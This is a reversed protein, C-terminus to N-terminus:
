KYLDNRAHLLERWMSRDEHRSRVGPLLGRQELDADHLGPRGPLLRHRMGSQGSVDRMAASRHPISLFVERRSRLVSRQLSSADFSLLLRDNPRRLQQEGPLVLWWMRKRWIRLVTWRRPKRLHAQHRHLMGLWVGEHQRLMLGDAALSLDGTGDYLVYHYRVRVNWVSLM